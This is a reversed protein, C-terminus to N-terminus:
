HSPNNRHFNVPPTCPGATIRLLIEQLPAYNTKNNSVTPKEKKKQDNM